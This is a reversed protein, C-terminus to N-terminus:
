KRFVLRVNGNLDDRITSEPPVRLVPWDYIILDLGISSIQQDMYHVIDEFKPTAGFLEICRERDTYMLWTEFNFAIFGTGGPTVMDACWELREAISDIPSFHIANISILADCYNQHGHAFEPDFYDHIDCPSKRDADIGIINPWVNKFINLGCGLDVIVEPDAEILPQIYYYPVVDLIHENKCFDRSREYVTHHLAARLVTMEHHSSIVHQYDKRIRQYFDSQQFEVLWKERQLPNIEKITIM